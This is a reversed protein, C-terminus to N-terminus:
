EVIITGAGNYSRYEGNYMADASVPGMIFKGKTVARVTYYLYKERNGPSLYYNIRDDRVDFHEPYARNDTWEYDRGETIRPNEIEFGAPLMDTVVVNDIDVNQLAVISIRVVILDNQKFTNGNIRQGYRNFFEKRVRLYKDEEVYNGIVSIGETEYYYYLTGTGSTSINVKGGKLAENDIVLDANNFTGVVKGNSNITATINTKAAQQALKGLALFSFALEQTNLYRSNKLQASLNRALEPVQPNNIDTEVLAHLSIALNRIPSYFSGGTAHTNDFEFYQKPLVENFSVRDSILSYAGALMYKEDLTLLEANGKYYNMLPRNAKGGRALVYLSYIIERAAYQNVEWTGNRYYSYRFLQKTGTKYNIFELLKDLVAGDVDYGAKQAEILFHAAYASGWWSEEYNGPWYSMGGNYLQMGQLKRIAERVNYAPNLENEDNRLRLKQSASTSNKVFDAFFIQPFAKSVTQEVCGHPYGLLEDFKDIFEAMPNKSVVLKTEVSSPIFDRVLSLEKGEGGKIMGSVATKLLSTSPRITIETEDNFTEGLGKVSIKVKAEGIQPLAKLSFAIMKEKNASIAVNNMQTVSAEVPGTITVTVSATANKSTTNSISVPMTIEDGPSFFRPLGTSVVLPDAVKMNATAAGFSKNKYAVAMIRLDGSFKPIDVEYTAEGNSNTTLIGSWFAVLKVRNNSMPNVRKELDYGDGGTSSKGLLEPFLYPYLDYSNVQLAQKAYFHGHPDPTEFNKLALIGEDVVAITIETGPESKVTIKQKTTSRSKEVATIKVPLKTSKKEVNLSAYGHAVMLPINDNSLPKILTASIYINPLYDEKVDVEIEASKKDTQLVRHEYIGNRELTVLLKGVFPTKFLVKAKEGVEYKEKDFVIEVQGETNVDFSTSLTSGWSYAYFGSGVYREAGERLVRIEYEGSVPPIFTFITEGSGFDVTRSTMVKEIRKSAYRYNDYNRTLVSQWEFRVVQVVAKSRVKKGDKDVSVLKAQMPANTAVYYDDISIGYMIPQTIIDFRKSRNVPRGSEDFVTGYITGQLVGMDKYEPLLEFTEVAMGSANTKGERLVQNFSQKSSIYFNYNPYNKPSFDKRSISFEMEFGKDAAPPGFYNVAELTAKVKETLTYFPKDVTLTSKIRDPMFEEIGVDRSALLVDNGNYVEITYNGTVASTSIPFSGEVAGQKNTNKRYSAYEKGNPMIIKVKLPVDPVTEWKTNRVISNFYVTEGPRYINRDGYIFVDLGTHHEHKGSVDFRSTEVGTQSLLLYNFDEGQRATIMAASFHKLKDKFDKVVAIGNNDTKVQFVDQNNNSIIHLDVDGMPKATLISNTYIFLDNASQKAIVGIDSVSVLKTARLYYDTKSSIQVLYIGKFDDIAPIDLNLATIGNVKPLDATKVTRSLVESSYIGEYDLNYEREGGGYYGEDEYYDYYGYSSNSRMYALINNEYIKYIKVTVEPVNVISVGINRSGSKSLYIAKKNNFGISPPMEGFFVDHKSDTKLQGGIAGKLFQKNLTLAYANNIVFDGSIFMGNETLEVKTAVEPDIKYAKELNDGDLEQSTIVRIYGKNDKFGSEVNTILLEYRSALVQSLDYETDTAYDSGVQKIGKLFKLAIVSQEKGFPSGNVTLFIEKAPSTNDISFSTEDDAIKLKLLEKLSAPDVEYNFTIGIRIVVGNGSKGKAWFANIGQPQLFDTHFKIQQYEKGFYLKDNGAKKLIKKTFTATYKTSPKFGAAPSFVLEKTSSWRFRGAVKPSIEVYASSDWQGLEEEDVMKHNFTFVLNQQTQIIESFNKVFSVMNKPSRSCSFLLVLVLVTLLRANFKYIM